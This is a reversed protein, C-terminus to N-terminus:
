LSGLAGLAIKNRLLTKVDNFTKEREEAFLLRRALFQLAYALGVVQLVTELETVLFISAGAIAAVAAAGKVLSPDQNYQQVLKETGAHARQCNTLSCRVSGKPPLVLQM